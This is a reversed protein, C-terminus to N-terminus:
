GEEPDEVPLPEAPERNQILAEILGILSIKEEETLDRILELAEKADMHQAGKMLELFRKSTHEFEIM